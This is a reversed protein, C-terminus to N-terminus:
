GLRNQRRRLALFVLGACGSILLAYTSPEPAAVEVLNIAGIVPTFGGTANSFNIVENAGTAVFTGTAFQGLYTAPNTSVGNNDELIVSNASSFNTSENAGDNSFDFIQVDYTAGLTLKSAAITITGPAGFVGGATMVAAFAASASSSPPYGGQNDGFDSFSGSSAALTITGDSISTSNGTVGNFTVGDAALPGGNPLLADINTIGATDAADILNSDGTITQATGWTIDQAHATSVAALVAVAILALNCVKINKM